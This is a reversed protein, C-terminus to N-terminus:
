SGLAVEVAVRVAQGVRVEDGEERGVVRAEGEGKADGGEVGEGAPVRLACPVPIGLEVMVPDPPIELLEVAEGEEVEEGSGERVRRAITVSVLVGIAVWEEM